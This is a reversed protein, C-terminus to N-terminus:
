GRNLNKGRPALEKERAGELEPGLMSRAEREREKERNRKGKERDIGRRGSDVARVFCPTRSTGRERAKERERERRRALPRAYVSYITAENCAVRLRCVFLTLEVHV